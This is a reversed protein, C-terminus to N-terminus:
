EVSFYRVFIQSGCVFIHCALIDGERLFIDRERGKGTRLQKFDKQVKIKFIVLKKLLSEKRQFQKSRTKIKLWTFILSIVYDMFVCLLQILFCSLAINKEYSNHIANKQKM